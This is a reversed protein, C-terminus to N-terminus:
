PFLSANDRRGQSCFKPVSQVCHVFAVEVVAVTGTEHSAKDVSREVTSSDGSRKGGRLVCTSLDCSEIRLMPNVSLTLSKRSVGTNGTKGLSALRSKRKASSHREM